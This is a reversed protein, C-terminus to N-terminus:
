RWVPGLPNEKNKEYTEETVAIGDVLRKPEGELYGSLFVHKNINSVSENKDVSSEFQEWFRSWTEINKAFTELKLTPL